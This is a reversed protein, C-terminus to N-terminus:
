ASGYVPPPPPRRRTLAIAFLVFVVGVIAGVAFVPIYSGMQTSPQSNTPKTPLELPQTSAASSTTNSAPVTTSFSSTSTTTTSTTGASSTTTTTTTQSTTGGTTQSTAILSGPNLSLSANGLYSYNPNAGPALQALGNAYTVVLNDAAEGTDGSFGYYSPFSSLAGSTDNQYFLGLTANLQTFYASELNGEGAFVLEADYYLGTPPTANGSVEFGSAQVSPDHITVNDYWDTSAAVAAGNSLLRYGLQVSVGVGPITTVKMLLALNLPLAYTVNSLSYTYLNPGSSGPGTGSQYVFGGNQFNTSTITQNSLYGASDTVNWIENGISVKSAGTVFDPVNQVWYVKQSPVGTDNVVLMANLQLTAGTPNVGYQNADPTNVQISSINAVGVIQSTLVQYSSVTASDNKIGFSAIGSALPTSLPGYSYPTSPSVQFGFQILARTQYAYFVLFYRGPQIAVTNQVGTGNQYTVSNSIPDTLNNQWADYQAATMLATSVPASSSAAYAATTNASFSDLEFGRYSGRRLLISQSMAVAQASAAPTKSVPSTTAVSIPALQSSLLISFVILPVLFAFVSRNRGGPAPTRHNNSAQPLQQFRTGLLGARRTRLHEKWFRDM